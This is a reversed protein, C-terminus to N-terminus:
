NSEKNELEKVKALNKELLELTISPWCKIGHEEALAENKKKWDMLKDRLQKKKSQEDLRTDKVEIDEATVDQRRTEGKEYTEMRDISQTKGEFSLRYIEAQEKDVKMLNARMKYSFTDSLDTRRGPIQKNM